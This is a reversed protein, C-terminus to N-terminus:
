LNLRLSAELLGLLLWEGLPAELRLLLRLSPLLRLSAELLGLALHKALWHGLSLALRLLLRLTLHEALCCWLALLLDLALHEYGHILLDLLYTVRRLGLAVERIGSGWETLTLPLTGSLLSRGM